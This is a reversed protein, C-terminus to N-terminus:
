RLTKELTIFGYTGNQCTFVIHESQELPTCIIVKNYNNQTYYNILKFAASFVEIRVKTYGERRAVRDVFRLLQKGVGRGKYSPDVCFKHFVLCRPKKVRQLIITGVVTSDDVVVHLSREKNNVQGLVYEASYPRFGNVIWKAYPSTPGYQRSILNAAQQVLATDGNRVQVIRM